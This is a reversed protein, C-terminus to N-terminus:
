PSNISSIRDVLKEFVQERSIVSIRAYKPSDGFQKGGKTSIKHERLFRECDDIEGECKVWAFAPQTAFTRGSFACEGSPFQPLSFIKSQNVANSLLKWRNAMLNHSHEFFANSEESKSSGRNYKHTDAVVQLIKAGRVQSEKSVGITNIIMFEMMKKVIEEDKVLAWGLRTGAHGTCKSVTFLMIDHDAPSSISTYQPWYYALDHILIGAQKDNVVAKRISGDPNNPSTVIEIYPKNGKFKHADGGWEYLGSKLYKAFLPYSSYYPAASVVSVPESANLPSTAYFVAQILQTSGAGVVIFRDQTVANGVLKHLRVM